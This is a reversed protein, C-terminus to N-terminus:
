KSVNCKLEDFTQNKLGDAIQTFLLILDYGIDGERPESVIKVNRNEGNNLRLRYEVGDVAADGPRNDALKPFTKNLKLQLREVFAVSVFSSLSMVEPDFRVYKTTRSNSFLEDWYNKKFFYGEFIYQNSQKVLRIAYEPEFSPVAMFEVIVKANSTDIAPLLYKRLNSQYVEHDIVGYKSLGFGSHCAMLLVFILSLYRKQRLIIRSRFISAM